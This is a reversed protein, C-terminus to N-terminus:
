TVEESNTEICEQVEEIMVWRGEVIWEEKM